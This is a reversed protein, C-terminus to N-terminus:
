YHESRIPFNAKKWAQMGGQISAVDEYGNKQLMSAAISSRYGSGCITAIKKGTPLNKIWDKLDSLEKHEATQIHGMNWEPMTRVDVILVDKLSALDKVPLLELSDMETKLSRNWVIFGVIRTIAILKLQQVIELVTEANEVVLIIDKDRPVVMGAWGCFAGEGPINVSDKIYCTAFIEPQRTDIVFSSEKLELFKEATLEQLADAEKM